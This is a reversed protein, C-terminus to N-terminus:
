LFLSFFHFYVLVWVPNRPKRSSRPFLCGSWSRRQGLDGPGRGPDELSLGRTLAGKVCPPSKVKISEARIAHVAESRSLHCRYLLCVNSLVNRVKTEKAPSHVWGLQALPEESQPWHQQPASTLPFPILSGLVSVVAGGLLSCLGGPVGFSCCGCQSKFLKLCVTIFFM